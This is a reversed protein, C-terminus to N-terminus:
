STNSMTKIAGAVKAALTHSTDGLAALITASERAYTRKWAAHGRLGDRLNDLRDCLKLRKADDSVEKLHALDVAKREARVTAYALSKSPNTLEGVLDAVAAGFEARLEDLTTECDEVTDHLFAAALATHPDDFDGAHEAVLLAVREPHRIYPDGSDRRTQGTHAAEAFEHARSFLSFTM